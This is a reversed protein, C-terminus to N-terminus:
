SDEASEFKIPFSATDGKHQRLFRGLENRSIDLIQVRETAPDHQLRCQTTGLRLRNIGSPIPGNLFLEGELGEEVEYHDGAVAFRGVTGLSDKTTKEKRGRESSAAYRAVPKNATQHPTLKTKSQFEIVNDGLRKSEDEKLLQALLQKDKDKEEPSLREYEADALQQLKEALVPSHEAQELVEEFFLPTGLLYELDSAPLDELLARVKKKEEALEKDKEAM